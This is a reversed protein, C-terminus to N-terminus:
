PNRAFVLVIKVCTLAFNVFAEQKRLPAGTRSRIHHDQNGYTRHASRKYSDRNEPSCVHRFYDGNRDKGCTASSPPSLSTLPPSSPTLVHFRFCNPPSNFFVHQYRRVLKFSEGGIPKYKIKKKQKVILFLTFTFKRKLIM